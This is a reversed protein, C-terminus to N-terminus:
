HTINKNPKLHDTGIIIDTACLPVPMPSLPPLADTKEKDEIVLTISKSTLTKRKGEKNIKVKYQGLHVAYM